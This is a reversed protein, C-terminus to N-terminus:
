RYKKSADSGGDRPVGRCRTKFPQGLAAGPSREVLSQLQGLQAVADFVAKPKAADGLKEHSFNAGVIHPGRSKKLAARPEACLDDRVVLVM